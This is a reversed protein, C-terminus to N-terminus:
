TDDYAISTLTTLGMNFVVPNTDRYYWVAGLPQELARARGRAWQTDDVDLLSRLIGRRNADLLHWASVLDLAPDLRVL